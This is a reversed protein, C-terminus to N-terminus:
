SKVIEPQPADPLNEAARQMRELAAPITQVHFRFDFHVETVGHGSGGSVCIEEGNPGKANPLRQMFEYQRHNELRYDPSILQVLGDAYVYAKWEGPRYGFFEYKEGCAFVYDLSQKVATLLQIMHDVTILGEVKEWQEGYPVIVMRNGNGLPISELPDHLAM